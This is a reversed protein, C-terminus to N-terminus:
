NKRKMYEIYFDLDGILEPDWQGELGYCSCHSGHVEFFQGKIADYFIVAAEGEYCYYSYTASIIVCTAKFQEGERETLDFERFVDDISEFGDDFVEIENLKERLLEKSKELLSM